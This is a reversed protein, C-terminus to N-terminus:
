FVPSMCIDPIERAVSWHEVLKGNEVRFMDVASQDRSGDEFTKHLHVFVHEGESMIRKVSVGCGRVRQAEIYAIAGERGDAADPNHQKYDAAAFREFAQRTGLTTLAAMWEEVVQRSTADTM